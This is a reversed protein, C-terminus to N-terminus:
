VFKQEERSVGIGPGAPLRLRGEIFQAGWYPDNETLVIADLDFYDFLSALHLAATIGVASELMCGLLLKLGQSRAEQAVVITNSLGGCKALKLNAGDIVERYKQLDPIGKITEDLLLVCDTRSKIKDLDILTPNSVPEEVFDVPYGALTKLSEVARSVSWGGNADLRLRAERQKLVEDVFELDGAFGVKLKFSSFESARELQAKIEDSSGLTITVSSKVAEPQELGLYQWLPLGAQKARQDFLAMELACRAVSHDAPLMEILKELDREAEIQGVREILTELSNYLRAASLGYHISPAGEGIGNFWRVILSQQREASAKAIKFAHRLRLELLEFRLPTRSM